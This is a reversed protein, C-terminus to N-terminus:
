QGSVGYNPLIRASPDNVNCHEWNRNPLWYDAIWEARGPYYADFIRRYMLAEKSVPKGHKYTPRAIEFDQDSIKQEALAKLDDVMSHGVADSFAAKERMLISEPLLNGDNFAQRLLYKGIGNHNVFFM